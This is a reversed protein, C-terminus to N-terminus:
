DAGADLLIKEIDANGREVALMLATWGKKNKAHVDAGKNLLLQVIEASRRGGEAALMLATWGRKDKSNVDAGKNLMMKVIDTSCDIRAFVIALMLPTQGYDTIKTNVNAGKEVLAKVTEIDRELIATKLELSQIQEEAACPRNNPNTVRGLFLVSNKRTDYIMFLFPHDARFYKEEEAFGIYDFVTSSAAAAKTGEENVDVFTKHLVSKIFLNMAGNMGSFDAVDAIFADRMGMSALADALSFESTMNFKPISVSVDYKCLKTIWNTINEFTLSQEILSLDAPRKPLILLMALEDGTYPLELMQLTGNGMYRFEETQNMMPVIVQKEDLLTFLDEKTDNESFPFAWKGKFYIANTLVLRTQADLIGPPIPEQIKNATKNEVWENITQRVVEPNNEFDVEHLETNYYARTLDLFEGLFGFGQQGWLANAMSLQYGKDASSTIHLASILDSFVAHLQQQDLKFHLVDAIQCATDSRAGSYTMALATSISFPSFFVNGEQDKLQAYMDLAFSTNGMVVAELDGQTSTSSTDAQNLHTKKKM